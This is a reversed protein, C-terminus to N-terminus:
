GNIQTRFIRKKIGQAVLEAELHKRIEELSLDRASTPAESEIYLANKKVFAIFFVELEEEWARMYFQFKSDIEVAKAATTEVALQGENDKLEARMFGLGLITYAIQDFLKRHHRPVEFVHYKKEEAELDDITIGHKEMLNRLQQEANVREGGVGKEALARLKRALEIYKSM